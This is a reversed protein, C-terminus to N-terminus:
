ITLQLLLRLLLSCHLLLLLSLLGNMRLSRSKDMVDVVSEHIASHSQGCSLRQELTRLVPLTTNRVQKTGVVAEAAGIPM